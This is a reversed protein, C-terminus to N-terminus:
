ALGPPIRSILVLRARHFQLDAQGRADFSVNPFALRAALTDLQAMVDALDDHVTAPRRDGISALRALAIADNREVSVDVSRLRADRM